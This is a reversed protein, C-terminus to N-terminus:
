PYTAAIGVCILPTVPTANVYNWCRMGTKCSLFFVHVYKLLPAGPSAKKKLFKERKNEEETYFSTCFM